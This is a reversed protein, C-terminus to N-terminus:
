FILFKKTEIDLNILTIGILNVPCGSRRAPSDSRPDLKGQRVVQVTPWYGQIKMLIVKIIIIIIIIM